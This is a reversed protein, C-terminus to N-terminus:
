LRDESSRFYTLKVGPYRKEFADFIGKAEDDRISGYLNLKGEKKAEEEIARVDQAFLPSNFLFIVLVELITLCRKRM